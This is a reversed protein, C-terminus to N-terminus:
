HFEPIYLNLSNGFLFIQLFERNSLCYICWECVCVRVCVCVYVYMYVCVRVSVCVCKYLIYQLFIGSTYVAMCVCLVYVYMYAFYAQFFYGFLCVGVHVMWMCMCVCVCVSDNFMHCISTVYEDLNLNWAITQKQHFCKPSWM